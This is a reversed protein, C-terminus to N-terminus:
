RDFDDPYELDGSDRLYDAVWESDITPHLVHRPVALPEVDDNVAEPEADDIVVDPAVDNVVSVPQADDVVTETVVDDVVSVPEADNIVDEDVVDDLVALPPVVLAKRRPSGNFLRRWRRPSIGVGVLVLLGILFLMPYSGYGKFQFVVVHTGPSVTVGVLAPAIMETVAPQGDVTVTWGPDFSAKLLVVATRNAFVTASAEGQVLDNDLRLVSGAPGSATAGTPLTPEAGATGGFAVTPYIAKAPLSSELFPATQSGIDNANAVITSQTDVVQILGSSNVTWLVYPGSQQVLTAPVPPPHGAPLLLYHVGFTSYDGLDSEDFYAEPDTMMSSTRLTLGVSDIDAEQTVYNYVPVSGVRFDYGWNSPLGVYVRGDGQSKIISLLVNLQSGETQDASQQQQIWVGNRSEYSELALWAPALVAVLVVAAIPARLRVLRQRALLRRLGEPARKVAVALWQILSVAGVAAVFLGALQVGSIYRQFLLSGNGPLLNLVVGLTPRGFFLLLSLVWVALLVRSREDTRARILCSVLGIAVFISIVPFHGSDYIQGTILWGLIKRAGYSDDIVTGVQFQNVAVWKSDVLLPLTVWLTALIAGVGIIAARGVRRLADRPRVLVLAILTLGALYAILFHFAITLGLTAVAGFLYRRQSIYRWGFGWALPLTWMAWLQSWLGNGLWDYSQTEFGHGTVSVLLPAMAAATGAVWREWGLLRASLYICIPWLALLLYLTGVFAPHVGVVKSLAGTIIASSSQYEVFFPSGLSLYPYWQDLPFKGTSLVDKALTVMQTHTALDNPYSVARLQVRLVWLNFSVALLILFEPGIRYWSQRFRRGESARLSHAPTKRHSPRRRGEVKKPKEDEEDSM